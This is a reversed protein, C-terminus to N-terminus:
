HKAHAEQVHVGKAVSHISYSEHWRCRRRVARDLVLLLVHLEQRTWLHLATLHKSALCSGDSARLAGLGAAVGADVSPAAAPGLLGICFGAGALAAPWIAPM